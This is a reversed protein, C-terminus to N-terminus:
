GNASDSTAELSASQEKSLIDITDGLATTLNKRTKAHDIQEAKLAQSLRECMMLTETLRSQLAAVDHIQNVQRKIAEGDIAVASDVAVASNKKLSQHKFREIEAQLATIQQRFQQAEIRRQQAETEYLKRWNAASAYAADREQCTETLQRQLTRIEALWQTVDFAM